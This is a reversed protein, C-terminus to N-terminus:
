KKAKASGKPAYECKACDACLDTRLLVPLDTNKGRLKEAALEVRRALGAKMTYERYGGASQRLNGLTTQAGKALAAKEQVTAASLWKKLKNM